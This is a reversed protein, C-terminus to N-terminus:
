LFLQVFLTWFCVRQPRLFILLLRKSGVRVEPQAPRSQAISSTQRLAEAGKLGSARKRDTVVESKGFVTIKLINTSEPEM